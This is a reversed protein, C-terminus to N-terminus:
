LFAYKSAFFLSRKSTTCLPPPIVMCSNRTAYSRDRPTLTDIHPLSSSSNIRFLFCLGAELRRVWLFKMNALQCRQTYSISSSAQSFLKRTFVRQVNEIKNRDCANMLGFFPCCYELVPLVFMQYLRLKMEPLFFNHSIFGCIQAAKASIRDAHPSLALKNTYSLGLDKITLCESLPNNQFIIPGPLKTPGFSM